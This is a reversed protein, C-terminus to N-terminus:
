GEVEGIAGFRLMAVAMAVDSCRGATSAEIMADESCVGHGIQRGSSRRRLALRRGDRGDQADVPALTRHREIRPDRQEVGQALRQV